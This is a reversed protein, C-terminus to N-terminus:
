QRPKKKALVSLFEEVPMLLIREFAQVASKTAKPDDRQFREFETADSYGAVRWLDTKTIKLDTSDNLAVLYSEIRSRRSTSSHSAASIGSDAPPILRKWSEKEWHIVRDSLSQAAEKDQDILFPMPFGRYREWAKQAVGNLYDMFLSQEALDNVLQVYAVAWIDLIKIEYQLRAMSPEAGSGFQSKDAAADEAQAKNMAELHVRPFDPRKRLEAIAAQAKQKLL